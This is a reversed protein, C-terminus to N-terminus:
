TKREDEPRAENTAPKAESGAGSGYRFDIIPNSLRSMIGNQSGHSLTRLANSHSQKRKVHQHPFTCLVTM